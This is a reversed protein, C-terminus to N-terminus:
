DQGLHMNQGALVAGQDLNVIAAETDHLRSGSGSTAWLFGSVILLPLLILGLRTACARRLSSRTHGSATDNSM